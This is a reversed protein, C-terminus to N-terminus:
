NRDSSYLKLDRFEQVSQPPTETVDLPLSSFVTTSEDDPDTSGSEELDTITTLFNLKLSGEIYSFKLEVKKDDM